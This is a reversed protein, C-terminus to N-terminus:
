APGMSRVNDAGTTRAVHGGMPRINSDVSVFEVEPFSVLSDILSAPLEVAINNFRAFSRKVKVGNGRLFAKLPGSMRDNLQVIVKVTDKGANNRMQQRLDSAIRSKKSGRSSGDQERRPAAKATDSVMIGACVSFM